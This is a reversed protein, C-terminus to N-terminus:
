LGLQAGQFSFLKIQLSFKDESPTPSGLHFNRLDFKTVLQLAFIRFPFRLRELELLKRPPFNLAIARKDKRYFRDLGFSHVAM